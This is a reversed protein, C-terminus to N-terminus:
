FQLGVTFNSRSSKFTIFRGFIKKPAGTIPDRLHALASQGEETQHWGLDIILSQGRLSMAEENPSIYRLSVNTKPESFRSRFPCNQVERNFSHAEYSQENPADLM